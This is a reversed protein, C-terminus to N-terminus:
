LTLLHPSASLAKDVTPSSGSKSTTNRCLSPSCVQPKRPPPLRPPISQLNPNTSAFEQMQLPYAMLDQQIARPVLALWKHHLVISSLTLFLIYIHVCVCVCVCLYSHSHWKATGCFNVSCQLDVIISFYFDKLFFSATNRSRPLEETVPKDWQACTFLLSWGHQWLLERRNWHQSISVHSTHAMVYEKYKWGYTLEQTTAM